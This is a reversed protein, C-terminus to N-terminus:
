AQPPKFALLRWTPAKRGGYVNYSGNYNYRNDTTWNGRGTLNATYLQAHGYLIHSANVSEGPGPGVAWYVAVDGAGWAGGPPGNRLYGSLQEKTIYGLDYKKYGLKSVLKNHFGSGNANGGASERDGVTPTRGRLATVFNKAHNYTGYGCMGNSEGGALWVPFSRALATEAKGNPPSAPVFTAVEGGGPVPANFAMGEFTPNAIVNVTLQQSPDYATPILAQITTTNNDIKRFQPDLEMEIDYVWSYMKKSTNILMPINQSTNIYLSSLDDNINDDVKEYGTADETVGRTPVARKNPIKIVLFPDGDRSTDPFMQKNYESVPWAGGQKLTATFRIIGGFRGEIIHDGERMAPVEFVYPEIIDRRHITRKSFRGGALDRVTTDEFLGAQEQSVNKPQTLAGPEISNRTTKTTLITSYFYGQTTNSDTANFGKLVLVLEGPIPLRFDGRDMPFAVRITSNESRNKDVGELKVFVAGVFKYLSAVEAGDEEAEGSLIYQQVAEGTVVEVVQALFLTNTKNNTPSYVPRSITTHEALGKFLSSM